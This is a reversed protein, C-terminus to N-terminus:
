VTVQPTNLGLPATPAVWGATLLGYSQAASGEGQVLDVVAAVDGVEVGSTSTYVILDVICGEVTRITKAIQVGDVTFDYSDGFFHIEGDYGMTRGGVVVTVTTLAAAVGTSLTVILRIRDSTGVHHTIYVADKLRNKQDDTYQRPM